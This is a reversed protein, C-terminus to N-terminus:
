TPESSDPLALEEGERIWALVGGRLNYVRQFGQAALFNAAQLSRGGSQCVMVLPAERSLEDFRNPLTQLVIHRAGAIVGRAVEADTRVDVVVVAEAAALAKFQAVSIDAFDTM